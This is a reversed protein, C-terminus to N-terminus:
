KLVRDLAERVHQSWLEAVIQGAPLDTWPRRYAITGEGDVVFLGPIYQVAYAEAIADGGAVAIAPFGLGEAYAAPDGEEDEKANIAVIKVGQEAYDTQINKLYPMFAKCYSCWTAWFVVVAPAGDTVQPFAVEHGEFDRGLWGPAVDGQEVAFASTAGLTMVILVSILKQRM